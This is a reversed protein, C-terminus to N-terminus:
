PSLTLTITRAKTTSNIGYTIRTHAPDGLAKYIAAGDTNGAAYSGLIRCFDAFTIPTTGSELPRAFVLTAPDQNSAYGGVTVNPLTFGLATLTRTSVTWVAGPIAAIDASISAGVPAGLRNKITTVDGQSAVVSADLVSQATV